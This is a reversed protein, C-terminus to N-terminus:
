GRRREIRPAKLANNMDSASTTGHNGWEAGRNAQGRLLEQGGQDVGGAAHGDFGAAHLHTGGGVGGDAEVVAAQGGKADAGPQQDGGAGDGAGGVGHAPEALAVGVGAAEHIAVGVDVGDDVANELGLRVVGGGEGEGKPDGIGGGYRDTEVQHEARIFIGFPHILEHIRGHHDDIPHVISEKLLIGVPGQTDEGGVQRRAVELVVGIIGQRHFVVADAPHQADHGRDEPAAGEVGDLDGNGVSAVVDVVAAQEDGTKPGAGGRALAQHGAGAAGARVGAVVDAAAEAAFRKIQKPPVVTAEGAAAAVDHIAAGAVVGDIAAAAVIEELAAGAVVAQDSAGAAVGGHEEAVAAAILDVDIGDTARAGDGAQGVATHILHQAHFGEAEVVADDVQTAATAGRPGGQRWRRRRDNVARAHQHHAADPGESLHQLGFEAVGIPETIRHQPTPFELGGVGAGPVHDRPGGGGGEADGGGLGPARHPHPGLVGIALTRETLRHTGALADLFQLRAVGDDVEHLQLGRDPGAHDRGEGGHEPSQDVEAEGGGLGAVREGGQQAQGGPHLEVGEVGQLHQLLGSPGGIGHGELDFGDGQLQRDKTGGGVVVGAARHGKAHELGRLLALHEVEAQLGIHGEHEAQRHRGYPHRSKHGLDDVAGAGHARLGIAAAPLPHFRDPQVEEVEVLPHHGGADGHERDILIQGRDAVAGGGQGRGHAVLGGGEGGGLQQLAEAVVVEVGEGHGAERSIPAARDHGLGIAAPLEEGGGAKHARHLEAVRHVIAM